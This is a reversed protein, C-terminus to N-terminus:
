DYLKSRIFSLLVLYVGLVIGCRLWTWGIFGILKLLYVHIIFFILYLFSGIVPESGSDYFLGVIFYTFFHLLPAIIINIIIAGPLPEFPNPIFFLRYLSSFSSIIHYM